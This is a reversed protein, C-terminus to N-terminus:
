HGGGDGHCGGDHSGTDAGGTTEHAPHGTQPFIRQWAANGFFSVAIASTILVLGAGLGALIEVLTAM